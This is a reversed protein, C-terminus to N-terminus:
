VPQLPQLSPRQKPKSHLVVSPTPTSTPNYESHQLTPHSHRQHTHLTCTSCQHPHQCNTPTYPAPNLALTCTKAPPSVSISSSALKCCQQKQPEPEIHLVGGLESNQRVKQSKSDKLFGAQGKASASNSNGQLTTSAGGGGSCCFLRSIAAANPINPLYRNRCMVSAPVHKAIIGAAFVRLIRHLLASSLPHFTNLGAQQSSTAAIHSAGTSTRGMHNDGVDGYESHWDASDM